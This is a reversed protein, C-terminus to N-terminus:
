AFPGVFSVHIHIMHIYKPCSPALVWLWECSRFRWRDSTASLQDVQHMQIHMNCLSLCQYNRPLLFSFMCANHCAMWYILLLIMGVGCDLLLLHMCGCYYGFLDWTGAWVRLSNESWVSQDFCSGFTLSQLETPLNVGQLRQNFGQSAPSELIGWFMDFFCIRLYYLSLWEEFTSADNCDWLRGSDVHRVIYWGHNKGACQKMMAKYLRYLPVGECSEEGAHITMNLRVEFMKLWTARALHWPRCAM